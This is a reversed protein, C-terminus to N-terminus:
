FSEQALEEALLLFAGLGYLIDSGTPVLKYFYKNFLVLFFNM